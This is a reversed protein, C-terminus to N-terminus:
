TEPVVPRAMEICDYTSTEIFGYQAYLDKAKGDAGLSIYGTPPVNEVIWNEIEKMIRKGLGKGQHAPLVAIDVVLFFLAGDGIIRGMGVTTPPELVTETTAETNQPHYLIQVSFLSNPLGIVAASHSKLQMGVRLRLDLYTEVSPTQHLVTYIAM